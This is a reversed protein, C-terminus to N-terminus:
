VRRSGEIGGCLVGMARPHSPGPMLRQLCAIWYQRVLYVVRCDFKLLLSEQEAEKSEVKGLARVLHSDSYRTTHDWWDPAILIRQDPM